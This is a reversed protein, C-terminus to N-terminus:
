YLSARQSFSTGVAPRVAGLTGAQAPLLERVESTMPLTSSSMALVENTPAHLLRINFRVGKSTAIYTGSLILASRVNAEGLLTPRRTLLLEGNGRDFLVHRGKRIEQVRYGSRVFWMALEEALVRSLPSAADLNNVDVPVTVILALDRVPRTDAQLKEFLQRDLEDALTVAMDPLSGAQAFLPMCLAAMLIGTAVLRKLM